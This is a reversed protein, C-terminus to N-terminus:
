ERDAELADLYRGYKARFAVGTVAAVPGGVAVVGWNGVYACSLAIIGAGVAVAGLM